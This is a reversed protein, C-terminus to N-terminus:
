QHQGRKQPHDKIREIWADLDRRYYLIKRLDRGNTVLPRVRPIPLERLTWTSLGLYAAASPLDLLRPESFQNVPPKPRAVERAARHEQIAEKALIEALLNLFSEVAPTLPKGPSAGKLAATEESVQIKRPRGRPRRAHLVPNDRDKDSM